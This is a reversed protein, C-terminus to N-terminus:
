AHHVEQRIRAAFVMVCGDPSQQRAEQESTAEIHIVRPQATSLAIFRWIYKNLNHSDRGQPHTTHNRMAVEISRSDNTTLRGAHTALVAPRQEKLHIEGKSKLKSVPSICKLGKKIMKKAYVSMCWNKPSGSIAVPAFFAFDCIVVTLIGCSTISSISCSLSGPSLVAPKKTVAAFPSILRRWRRLALSCSYNILVQCGSLIADTVGGAFNKAKRVAHGVVNQLLINQMEPTSYYRHDAGESQAVVVSYDAEYVTLLIACYAIRECLREPLPASERKTVTLANCM